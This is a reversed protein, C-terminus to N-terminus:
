APPLPAPDTMAEVGLRASIRRVYRAACVGSVAFALGGVGAAAYADSTAEASRRVAEAEEGLSNTAAIWCWSGIVWGAWWAWSIPSSRRARWEPGVVGNSRSALAIREIEGIVAKPIAWNAFPVFWGGVTWGRSWTRKGPYLADTARHAQRCWVLFVIGAGVMALLMLVQASMAREDADLWDIATGRGARYDEHVTWAWM